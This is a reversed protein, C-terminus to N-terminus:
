YVVGNRDSWERFVAECDAAAVGPVVQTVYAGGSETELLDKLHLLGEEFGCQAVFQQTVGCYVRSIRSWLIAGLSMLDPHATVYLDCGELSYTGLRSTAARIVNVEATATADRASLVTNCAEAIVIGDKVIVAGFCEREKAHGAKAGRVAAAIAMRMFKEHDALAPESPGTPPSLQGAERDFVLKYATQVQRGGKGGFRRRMTSNVSTDKFLEECDQKLIGDYVDLMNKVIREQKPQSSESTNPIYGMRKIGYHGAKADIEDYFVKDDFGYKAATHRDVGIYAKGLRSWQVAGWCMPCPECTTFLECDSLDHTGLSQCAQQIANMEAHCCPDGRHLVMNHACSVIVGDRVVAAGFPGGHQLRIGGLASMAAARMFAEAIEKESAPTKEEFRMISHRKSFAIAGAAPVATLAVARRPVAHLFRWM